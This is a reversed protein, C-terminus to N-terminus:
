SSFKNWINKFVEDGPVAKTEGNRLEELRRRAAEAWKEDIGSEPPNLSKMLSDVIIIREELPLPMAEAILEKTKM